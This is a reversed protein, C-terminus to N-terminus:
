YSFVRLGLFPSDFCRNPFFLADENLPVKVGACQLPM